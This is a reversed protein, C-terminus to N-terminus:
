QKGQKGRILDSAKEAIMITTANTNGNVITPMISADVVRLGEIGYVRLQEDVVALEDRGMKCTGVPHYATQATNRIYEAIAADSEVQPGPEVEQAHFPSLAQTKNLRRVVKVGEVLRHLDSPHELYNAFIAPHERPYTSRLQLHRHSQPLCLALAILYGQMEEGPLLSMVFPSMLLQIDPAFLKPSTKIFAIGQLANGFETFGPKTASTLAFTPHDQLNHGVGPLDAVVVIGLTRLQDAPGVGSLLLTQPSNIGGGCLLVEKNAQVQHEVGDKFCTLGVARTGEFLIHTVLTNTWVTLNPRSQAPHLYSTATSARKGQHITYQLTSFGEQAAGNYDDLRSWGLEEGAALFAETLPNLSPVDTVTLPGGRGTYSSSGEDRRESKKFYPLVDAYSWGANGLAQWGDYDARNGRVYLTANISSSGGLVKGRPWSLKRNNLFPEEETMYMWDVDTGLLSFFANPDHITPNDDNGGAEIILVSTGSDETLRNALVCGASGAGVILYDYM